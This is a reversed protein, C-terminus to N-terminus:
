PRADKATPAGAVSTERVVLKPTLLIHRADGRAEGAHRGRVLEILRECTVLSLEERPQHITTLSPRICAALDTDDYGVVSLDQPVRLGLEHAALLAGIAMLDNAAFVATFKVKRAALERACEYGSVQSYSGTAVLEERWPIGRAALAKRYGDPRNNMRRQKLPGTILAIDIHGLELLHSVADAAAETDDVGACDAIAQERDLGSLVVPVERDQLFTLDKPMVEVPDVIMGELRHEYLSRM